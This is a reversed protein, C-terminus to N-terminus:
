YSPCAAAAASTDVTLHFDAALRHAVEDFFGVHRGRYPFHDRLNL